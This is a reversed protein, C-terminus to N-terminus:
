KPLDGTHQFDPLNDITYVFMQLIGGMLSVMNKINAGLPTLDLSVLGMVELPTSPKEMLIARTFVPKGGLDKLGDIFEVAVALATDNEEHPSHLPFDFELKGDFRTIGSYQSNEGTVTDQIVLTPHVIPYIVKYRGNTGNGSVSTLHELRRQLAEENAELLSNLEYLYADHKFLFGKDPDIPICRLLADKVGKSEYVAFSISEVKAGLKTLAATIEINDFKSIAGNYKSFMTESLSNNIVLYMINDDSYWGGRGNWLNAELRLFPVNNELRYELELPPTKQEGIPSVKKVSTTM